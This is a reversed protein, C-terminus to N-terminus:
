LDLTPMLEAPYRDGVPTFGALVNEIEKMEAESLIIEVANEKVREPNKTGPIPYIEPMDERQSLTRLWGLAIQGTTCEKASAIKEIETVLALNHKM